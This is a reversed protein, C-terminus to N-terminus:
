KKDEKLLDDVVDKKFDDGFKKLLYGLFVQQGDCTLFGDGNTIEAKRFSKEPEKKFALVFKEKINMKKDESDGFSILQLNNDYQGWPHKCGELYVYGFFDLTSVVTRVSGIADTDWRAGLVKVNDGVKFM